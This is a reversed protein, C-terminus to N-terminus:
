RAGRKGSPAASERARRELRYPTSLADVREMRESELGIAVHSHVGSGQGPEPWQRVHIM